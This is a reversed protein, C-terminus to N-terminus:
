KRKLSADVRATDAKVQDTMEKLVYSAALYPAVKMAMMAARDAPSANRYEWERLLQATRRSSNEQDKQASISPTGIPCFILTLLVCTANAIGLAMWFWSEDPAWFHAPSNNCAKWACGFFTATIVAVVALPMKITYPYHNGQYVYEGDGQAETAEERAEAEDMLRDFDRKNRGKLRKTGSGVYQRPQKSRSRRPKCEDPADHQQEEFNGPLEAFTPFKFEDNNSNPM